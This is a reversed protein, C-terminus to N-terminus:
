GHLPPEKGGTELERQFSGPGDPDLCRLLIEDRGPKEWGPDLSFYTSTPNLVARPDSLGHQTGSTDSTLDQAGQSTLDGERDLVCNGSSYLPFFIFRTNVETFLLHLADLIAPLNDALSTLQYRSNNLLYSRASM